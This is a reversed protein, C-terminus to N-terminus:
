LQKMFIRNSVGMTGVTVFFKLSSVIM